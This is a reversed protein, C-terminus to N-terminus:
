ESTGNPDGNCGPDDLDVRGNANNDIGDRCAPLPKMTVGLPSTAGDSVVVAPLIQNLGTSDVTPQLLHGQVDLALIQVTWTGATVSRTAEGVTCLVVVGDGDGAGDAAGLEIADVGHQGCGVAASQTATTAPAADALFSWTVRYAGDNNCGASAALTAAWLGLAWFGRWRSWFRSRSRSRSLWPSRRSSRVM